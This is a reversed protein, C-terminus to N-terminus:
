FLHVGLDDMKIPNEKTFWGNQPLGMQPGGGWIIYYMQPNMPARPARNMDWDTNSMPKGLIALVSTDQFM